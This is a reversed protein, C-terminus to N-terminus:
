FWTSLLCTPQSVKWSLGRFVDSTSSLICTLRRWGISFYVWTPVCAHIWRWTIVDLNRPRAWTSSPNTNSSNCGKWVHQSLIRPYPRRAIFYRINCFDLHTFHFFVKPMYAVHHAAFSSPKARSYKSQNGFFFYIPWMQANGFQALSTSDSWIKLAILVIPFQRGLGLQMQWGGFIPLYPCIPSIGSPEDELNWGLDWSSFLLSLDWNLFLNWSLHQNPMWISYVARMWSVVLKVVSIESSDFEILQTTLQSCSVSIFDFINWFSLDWNFTM